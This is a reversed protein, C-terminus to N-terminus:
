LQEETPGVRNHLSLFMRESDLHLIIIHISKLWNLKLDM